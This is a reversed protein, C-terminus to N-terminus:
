ETEGQIEENSEIEETEEDEPQEEETLTSGEASSEEAFTEKPEDVMCLEQMGNLEELNYPEGEAAEDEDPQESEEPSESYIVRSVVPAAEEPESDEEQKHLTTNKIALAIVLQRLIDKHKKRFQKRRYWPVSSVITEFIEEATDYEGYVFEKQSAIDETLLALEVQTELEAEEICLRMPLNPRKRRFPRREYDPTLNGRKIAKIYQRSLDNEERTRQIKEIKSKYSAFVVSEMYSRMEQGTINFGNKMNDLMEFYAENIESLEEESIYFEEGDELRFKPLRTQIARQKAARAAQQEPSGSAPDGSYISVTANVNNIEEDPQM